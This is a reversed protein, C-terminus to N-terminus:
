KGFTSKVSMGCRIFTFLGLAFAFLGFLFWQSSGLWIYGVLISLLGAVLYLEWTRRWYALCIFALLFAMQIVMVALANAATLQATLNDVSTSIGALQAAMDNLKDVIGQFATIWENVTM